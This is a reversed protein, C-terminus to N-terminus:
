RQGATCVVCPLSGNSLLTLFATRDSSTRMGVKVNGSNSDFVMSLRLFRVAVFVEKGDNMVCARQVGLLDAADIESSPLFKHGVHSSLDRCGDKM